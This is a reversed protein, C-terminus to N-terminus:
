ADLNEGMDFGHLFWAKSYARNFSADSGDFCYAYLDALTRAYSRMLLGGVALFLVAGCAAPLWAPAGPMCAFAAYGALFAPVATMVVILLYLMTEASNQQKRVTAFRRIRAPVRVGDREETDYAVVSPM